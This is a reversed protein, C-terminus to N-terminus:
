APNVYIASTRGADAIHSSSFEPQTTGIQFRNDGSDDQRMHRDYGASQGTGGRYTLGPDVDRTPLGRGGGSQIYIAFYDVGASLGSPEVAAWSNAGWYTSNGVFVPTTQNVGSLVWVREAWTYPSATSGPFTGPESGADTIFKAWVAHLYNTTTEDAVIATWGSPAGFTVNYHAALGTCIVYDGNSVGPNTLGPTCSVLTVSGGGGSSFAFPNIIRSM